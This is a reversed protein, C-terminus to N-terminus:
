LLKKHLNNIEAELDSIINKNEKIRVDICSNFDKKFEKNFDKKHSKIIKCYEDDDFICSGEYLIGSKKILSLFYHVTHSMLVDDFLTDTFEVVPYLEVKRHSFVPTESLRPVEELTDGSFYKFEKNKDFFFDGIKPEYERTFYYFKGNHVLVTLKPMGVTFIMSKSQPLSHSFASLSDQTIRRINENLFIDKLSFAYFDVKKILELIKVQAEIDFSLKRGYAEFPLVPCFYATDANVVKNKGDVYVNKHTYFNTTKRVHSLNGSRLFYFKNGLYEYMGEERIAVAIERQLGNETYIFRPIVVTGRYPVRSLIYDQLTEERNEM